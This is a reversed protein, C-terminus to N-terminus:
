ATRGKGYNQRHEKWIKKAKARAIRRRFKRLEGPFKRTIIRFEAIFLENRIFQRTTIM